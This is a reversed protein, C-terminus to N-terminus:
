FAIVSSISVKLIPYVNELSKVYECHTQEESRCERSKFIVKVTHQDERPYDIKLLFSVFEEVEQTSHFAGRVLGWLSLCFFCVWKRALTTTLVSIFERSNIMQVNLHKCVSSRCVFYDM